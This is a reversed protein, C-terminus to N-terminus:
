KGEQKSKLIKYSLGIGISPTPKSIKSEGFTYPYGLHTQLGLRRFNINVILAPDIYVDTQHAYFHQGIHEYVHPYIPNYNINYHRLYGTNLQATVQLKKHKLSIGLMLNHNFTTYRLHTYLVSLYYNDPVQIWIYEEYRFCGTGLTISSGVEWQLYPLIDKHYAAGIDFANSRGKYLINSGSGSVVFIENRRSALFSTSLNLYDTLGYTVNVRNDAVGLYNGFLLVFTGAIRNALSINQPRQIDPYYTQRLLNIKLDGKQAFCSTYPVAITKYNLYNIRQAQAHTNFLLGICLLLQVTKRM